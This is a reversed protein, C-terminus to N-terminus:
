RKESKCLWRRRVHVVVPHRSKRQQWIVGRCVNRVEILVGKAQRQATLQSGDKDNVNKSEVRSVLDRGEKRNACGDGDCTCLLQIGVRENNVIM